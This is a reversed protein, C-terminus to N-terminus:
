AVIPPFVTPQPSLGESSSNSLSYITKGYSVSSFDETLQASLMPMSICAMQDVCDGSMPKIPTKQHGPVGAVHVTHISSSNSLQMM